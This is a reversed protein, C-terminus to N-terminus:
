NNISVLIEDLRTTAETEDLNQYPRKCFIASAIDAISQDNALRAVGFWRILDVVSGASNPSDEVSLRTEIEFEQGPGEFSCSLISLIFLFFLGRM